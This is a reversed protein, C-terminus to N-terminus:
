RTAEAFRTPRFPELVDPLAGSVLLEAIGDATVPTLLIGNRYHGTAALLGEVATSGVIPANDPSGPRLGTSVEEWIAEGIEPLVTQADRLLEYVAGARPEDDFGSEESSAGIVLRGDRRPVVYVPSGKVRARVVRSPASAAPLRVRLTQGKVPRVCLGAEAPVGDIRGSWAGAAVVVTRSSIVAGGAVRVGGVRGGDALVVAASEVVRVGRRRCATM